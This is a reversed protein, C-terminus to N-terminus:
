HTTTVTISSTVSSIWDIETPHPHFLFYPPFTSVSLPNVFSLRLSKFTRNPNLPLAIINSSPRILINLIKSHFSAHCRLYPPLPIPMLLCSRSIFYSVRLERRKLNSFPFRPHSGVYGDLHVLSLCCAVAIAAATAAAAAFHTVFYLSLLHFRM